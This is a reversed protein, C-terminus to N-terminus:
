RWSGRDRLACNGDVIATIFLQVVALVDCNWYLFFDLFLVNNGNLTEISRAM